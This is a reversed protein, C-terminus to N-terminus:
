GTASSTAGGKSTCDAPRRRWALLVMGAAILIFTGPEPVVASTLGAALIQAARTTPHVDDWFLFQNQQALTGAVCAPTVVCADTVNSFGFAGPTAVVNDLVAFTDFQTVYQPLSVALLQNFAQTLATAGDTNGQEAPTVGLDPMNPLLIHQAGLDHLITVETVLNTVANGIAAPIDAPDTISFFDNPGAWVMYLAAPDAMGAAAFTLVQSLTGSSALPNPSVLDSNALGTTAGGVAFNYVNSQAIGLNSALYEPAVPGNSFRGDAYPAVPRGANGVPINGSDSLSDGFVYLADFPGAQAWSMTLAAVVGGIVWVIRKNM